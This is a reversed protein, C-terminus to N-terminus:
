RRQRQLRLVAEAPKIEERSFSTGSAAVPCPFRGNRGRVQKMYTELDEKEYIFGMNDQVPEKLDMVDRLSLPCKDNKFGSTKTTEVQIDDAITEIAEDDAANSLFVKMLPHDEIKFPRREEAKLHVVTDEILKQFDTEDGTIRYPRRNGKSALYVMADLAYKLERHDEVLREAAERAQDRDEQSGVKSAIAAARGLTDIADKIKDLQENIRRTSSQFVALVFEDDYHPAPAVEGALVEEPRSTCKSAVDKAM